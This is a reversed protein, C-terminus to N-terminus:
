GKEKDVKIEDKHGKRYVEFQCYQDNKTLLLPLDCIIDELYAEFIAQHATDCYLSWLEPSEPAIKRWLEQYPCVLTQSHRVHETLKIPNRKFRKDGPLDYYEFLSKVDIPFGMEEHKERITRGRDHGFNIIARKLAEVGEKGFTETFERAMYIYLKAFMDGFVEVPEGLESKKESMSFGREM